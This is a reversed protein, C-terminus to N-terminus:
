AIWSSDLLFCTQADVKLVLNREACAVMKVLELNMIIMALLGIM